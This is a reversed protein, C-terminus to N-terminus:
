PGAVLEIGHAPLGGVGGDAIRVVRSWGGRRLLSAAFAARAGAACAVAVTQEPADIGLSRGNGLRGLPMHISGGVHGARWEEGERVDVLAVSRERLREALTQLDWSSESVVPLERWQLAIGLIRWLGVAHLARAMAAAQEPDEAAIVIPEDPALAWGARTGLAQAAVPLNLAGAVHAADFERPSRADLVTAGRALAQLLEDSAIPPPLPPPERQGVRNLAVIASVNPPRAPISEVLRRVFAGEALSLLPNHRREYGITSSSKLSLSTGGCLSGGVHAPWVEVHDGLELLGRLSMHLERAGSEVAVALDPRALDGVLLSDGTLVMWPERARAEDGVALALHEPRHGPTALARVCVSGARLEDGARLDGEREDGARAARHSRAGTGAALRERGSVHDAHDHTDIVHTISAHQECAIEVYVDTDLRPDVVIAEGGDGLIYSACALDRYLVQRFFM